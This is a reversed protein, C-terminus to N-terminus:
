GKREHYKPKGNEYIIEVIKPQNVKTAKKFIHRDTKISAVKRAKLYKKDGLQDVIYQKYVLKYDIERNDFIFQKNLDRNSIGWSQFDKSHFFNSYSDYDLVDMDWQIKYRLFQFQYKLMYNMAWLCDAYDIIKIPLKEFVTDFMEHYQTDVSDHWDKTLGPRLEHMGFIGKNKLFYRMSGIIQDGINGTVLHYKKQLRSILSNNINIIKNQAKLKKYLWPYERETTISVGAVYPINHKELAAIVVTSDIGGSWLVMLPKSAKKYIRKVRADAIESFSKDTLTDVLPFLSKYKFGMDLTETRDIASNFGYERCLNAYLQSKLGRPDNEPDPYNGYLRFCYIM